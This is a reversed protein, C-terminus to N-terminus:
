ASGYLRVRKMLRTANMKAVNPGMWERATSNGKTGCYYDCVEPVGKGELILFMASTSMAYVKWNTSTSQMAKPSSRVYCQVLTNRLLCSFDDM